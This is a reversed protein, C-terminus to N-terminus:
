QPTATQVSWGSPVGYAGTVNWNAATNKVFVGSSSVNQVWNICYSTTPTTTFMATIKTLSSCNQFMTNYCNSVLTLAPLYPSQTLSSCSAFMSRYCNAVLATVPLEKPGASMASCGEFMRYYCYQALNTAPIRLNEANRIPLNGFFNAFQYTGTTKFDSDEAFTDGNQLSMINGYIDFVESPLTNESYVDVWSRSAQSSGTRWVGEAIISLTEGAALTIGYVGSTFTYTDQYTTPTVWPGNNLKMKISTVGLAPSIDYECTCLSKITFPMSLFPDGSSQTSLTEMLARRRLLLEIM